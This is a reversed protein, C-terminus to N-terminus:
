SWGWRDRSYRSVAESWTLEPIETGSYKGSVSYAVLRIACFYVLKDPLHQSLKWMLKEKIASANLM